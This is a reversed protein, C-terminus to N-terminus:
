RRLFCNSPSYNTMLKESTEMCTSFEPFAWLKTNGDLGEYTFVWAWSRWTYGNERYYDRSVGERVCLTQRCWWGDAPPDVEDLGNKAFLLMMVLLISKM